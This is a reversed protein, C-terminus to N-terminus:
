WWSHLFGPPEGLTINKEWRIESLFTQVSKQCAVHLLYEYVYLALRTKIESVPGLCSLNVQITLGLKSLQSGEEQGGEGAHYASYFDKCIAASKKYKERAEATLFSSLEKVKIAYM